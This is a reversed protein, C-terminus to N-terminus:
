PEESESIEVLLKINQFEQFGARFSRYFITRIDIIIRQEIVSLCTTVLPLRPSFIIYDQRLSKM